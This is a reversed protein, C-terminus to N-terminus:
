NKIMIRHKKIYEDRKIFSWYKKSSYNKILTKGGFVFLKEIIQKQIGVDKTIKLKIVERKDLRELQKGGLIVM